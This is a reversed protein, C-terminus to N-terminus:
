TRVTGHVHGWAKAETRGTGAISKGTSRQHSGSRLGAQVGAGHLREQGRRVTLPVRGQM